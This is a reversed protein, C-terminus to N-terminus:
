TRSDPKKRVSNIFRRFDAKSWVVPVPYLPNAEKRAWAIMQDIDGDQIVDFSDPLGMKRNTEEIWRIFNNAKVAENEGGIGCVEALEALRKHAKIRHVGGSGTDNTQLIKVDPADAAQGENGRQQEQEIGQRFLLHGLQPLLLFCLGSQTESGLPPKVPADFDAGLTNQRHFFGSRFYLRPIFILGVPM